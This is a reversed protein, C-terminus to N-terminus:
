RFIYTMRGNGAQVGTQMSTNSDMGDTNGSGGGGPTNNNHGSAGGYWGGGGGGEDNVQVHDGGLGFAGNYNGGQNSQTGGVTSRSGAATAGSGSLGGGAGGAYNCQNYGCGGGGGAVLIRSNLGASSEASSSLTRVDTAGGGGSGGRTGDGGGNYGGPNTGGIDAAGGQTGQGGVHVYFTTSASFTIQGQAMGGLGGDPSGSLNLGGQAGYVTLRYETDVAPTTISQEAGTFGLEFETGASAYTWGGGSMDCHVTIPNLGDLDPDIQYSGDATVGSALLDGCTATLAPSPTPTISAAAEAGSGGAGRTQADDLSDSVNTFLADVNSGSSTIATLAVISVLGVLLATSAATSGRRINHKNPM